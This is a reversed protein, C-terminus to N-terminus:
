PTPHKLREIEAELEKVRELHLTVPIYLPSEAPDALAENIADIVRQRLCPGGETSNIWGDLHKNAIEAPTM